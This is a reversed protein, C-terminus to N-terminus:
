AASSRLGEMAARFQFIQRRSRYGGGPQDPNPANAIIAPVPRPEPSGIMAESGSAGEPPLAERRTPETRVVTDLESNMEAEVQRPDPLVNGDASMAHMPLLRCPRGRGGGLDIALGLDKAKQARRQAVSKDVNMRSALENLDLGRPLTRDYPNVPASHDLLHGVLERVGPPIATGSAENLPRELFRRAHAYDDLTAVVRGAGDRERRVQHMLASVAIATLLQEFDRKARNMRVFFLKALATAFPLVTERANLGLWHQYAHWPTLDVPDPPLDGAFRRGLNQLVEKTHERTDEVLISLARTEDEGHMTQHTTTMVFAIPGPRVVERTTFGISMRRTVEWRIQGESILTRVLLNGERGQLGSAEQVALVRHRLDSRGYAIAKPSFGSKLEYAEPPFMELTRNLLWSKGSSSPAKIFACMPRQLLRSTFIAYLLEVHRMDGVFGRRQMADTVLAFVNDAGAIAKAADLIEGERRCLRKM